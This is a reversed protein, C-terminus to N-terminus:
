KLSFHVANILDRKSISKENAFWNLNIAGAINGLYGLVELDDLVLSFLSVMAFVSDGAGTRDVIKGSHLAPVHVVKEGNTIILGNSGDTIVVIRASMIRHIELAADLKDIGQQKLELEVEDGNLVILGASSYKSISSFGKNGANKQVNLSFNKYYKSMLSRMEPTILGHGFDLAILIDVDNATKTLLNILKEENEKSIYQDDMQYTEFLFTNTKDNIYRTKKIETYNTDSIIQNVFNLNEFLIESSHVSAVTLNSPKLFSSFTNILPVVGGLFQKRSTEKEAVLPHKGSKGLSETFIYEDIIVEGILLIRKEEIEQILESIPKNSLYSKIHETIKKEQSSYNRMKNIIASSSKVPESTLHIEGGYTSLALMEAELNGAHDFNKENSNVRYDDGKFYLNPRIFNINEESSPSDSELVFDVYEIGAITAMRDKLTNIPRGPGKNVFKDSTISVILIDVLVAAQRFHYIHGSHLVDFVGHCMGIKATPFKTRLYEILFDKSLMKSEINRKEVM